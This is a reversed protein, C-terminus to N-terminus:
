GKASERYGKEKLFKQYDALQKANDMNKDVLLLKRGPVKVYAVYGRDERFQNIYIVEGNDHVYHAITNDAM